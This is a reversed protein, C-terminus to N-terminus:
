NKNLDITLNVEYSQVDEEVKLDYANPYYVDLQRKVNANGIGVKTVESAGVPSVKLQTNFVRFKLCGKFVELHIHVKPNTPNGSSGHKFANEVFSLLVLPAMQANPDDVNHSFTLDLQAGYRIRELDTYGQILAVEKHVAIRPENCQYLMYDLMESLKLVVEPAADSKTLTLAYISNLTNFLFHPHIQAKLFKLETHMKEKQLVEIQHREEFREKISKIALMLFVIVYVAPFYIAFLYFPDMLIELFTESEYEGRRTLPEAIHVTCLRGFMVFMYGSVLFSVVFSVYKKKLFLKPIQYYILFYAAMLQSPLLVLYNVLNDVFTGANLTALVSFIFLFSFWFLFHSLGRHQIIRDTFSTRKSM